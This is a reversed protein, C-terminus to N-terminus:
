YMQWQYKCCIYLFLNCLWKIGVSEVYVSVMCLWHFCTIHFCKLNNLTSQEIGNFLRFITPKIVVVDDIYANKTKICYIIKLKIKISRSPVASFVFTIIICFHTFLIVLFWSITYQVSNIKYSLYKLFNFRIIKPPWYSFVVFIFYYCAFILSFTIINIVYIISM